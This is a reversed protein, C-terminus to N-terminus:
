PNSEADAGQRQKGEAAPATPHAMATVVVTASILFVLIATRALRSGGREGRRGCSRVGTARGRLRRFVQVAGGQHALLRERCLMGAVAAVRRLQLGAAMPM